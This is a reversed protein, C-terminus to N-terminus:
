PRRCRCGTRAWSGGCGASAAAGGRRRRSSAGASRRASRGAPGARASGPDDGAGVLGLGDAACNGSRARRRVDDASGQGRSVAGQTPSAAAITARASGSPSSSRSAPRGRSRAPRPTGCSRGRRGDRDDVGVRGGEDGEADPRGPGLGAVAVDLAALRQALGLPDGEVPDGLEALLGVAGGGLPEEGVAPEGPVGADEDPPGRGDEVGQRRVAGVSAAARSRIAAPARCARRPRSSRGRTDRQHLLHRDVLGDHLLGVM